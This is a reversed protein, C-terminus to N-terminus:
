PWAGEVGMGRLALEVLADALAEKDDIPGPGCPMLSLAIFGGALQAAALASDADSRVLGEEKGRELQERLLGVVRSFGGMADAPVDPRMGGLEATIALALPGRAELRGVVERSIGRLAARATPESTVVRELADAVETVVKTFLAEVLEDHDAFYYYLAGKSMDCLDSVECMQFETSHREAMLSLAADMIKRRTAISKRTRTSGQQHWKRQSARGGEGTPADECAELGGDDQVFETAHGDKSPGM